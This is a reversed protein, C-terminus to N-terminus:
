EEIDIKLSGNPLKVTFKASMARASATQWVVTTAAAYSAFSNAVLAPYITAAKNEKYERAAAQANGAKTTPCTHTSYNIKSLPKRGPPTNSVPRVFTDQTKATSVTPNRANTVTM